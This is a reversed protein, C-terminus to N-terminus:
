ERAVVGLLQRARTVAAFFTERSQEDGGAALNEWAPQDIVVVALRDLGKARHVNLYYVAGAEPDRDLPLDRLPFKGLREATGLSSQARDRHRGLILVDHPHCFGREVWRGVMEAVVGATKEPPASVLEVEPGERLQDPARLGAGPGTGDALRLGQLYQLVPRTYRLAQVLRVRAPQSFVRLLVAPDFGGADRFRPRQARDYVVTIPAAAGGRLLAFYFVWWGPLEPRGLVSPLQTDHDQGEDVVLADYAPKLKGEDLLALLYGPIEEMFYRRKEEVSTPPEIAIEAERLCEAALAEWSRVVIEGRKPKRREVLQRLQEALPLNFCMLLVRRGASAADKRSEDAGEGEAWRRAQELALFTKGSGCAGEILLQANDKLQDLLGSEAEMQRLLLKDTEKIFFRMAKLTAGEGFAKLFLERAPRGRVLLHRPEVHQSWWKTFAQLDSRDALHARALEGQLIAGEGLQVETLALAHHVLPHVLGGAADRLRRLVGQLEDHLQEVPNDHPDHEWYGTLVFHRLRSSKVEFVCIHGTPSQVLFDGERETGNGGEPGYRFGWVVVWDDNLRSLNEAVWAEAPHAASEPRNM